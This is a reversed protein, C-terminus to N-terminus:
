NCIQAMKDTHIHLNEFLQVGWKLAGSTYLFTEPIIIWEGLWVGGSREHQHLSLEGIQESRQRGLRATIEMFESIRQNKKHPMCSSAGQGQVYSTHMEGIDTSSLLNVNHAIKCLSACLTGMSQIIDMVNDRANQWHPDATQLHLIGAMEQKLKHKEKATYDSLEGVAGGIQVCLCRIEVDQIVQLRRTIESKWVQLKTQLKMPIAHQGNTRGMIDTQGYTYILTDLYACIKQCQETIYTLSHQTQIMLATDIIDQTTTKYHVFKGHEKLMQQMQQILGVIPRGVFQMDQQLTRQDFNAYTIKNIAEYASVPIIGLNSQALALAKEVKLWTSIASKESWIDNMHSDSFCDQYIHYHLMM